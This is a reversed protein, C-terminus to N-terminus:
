RKPNRKFLIQFKLNKKVVRLHKVKEKTTSKYQVKKHVFYDITYKNEDKTRAFAGNNLFM